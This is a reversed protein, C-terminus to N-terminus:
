AARGASAWARGYHLPSDGSPSVLLPRQIGRAKAMPLFLARRCLLRFWPPHVSSPSRFAGLSPCVFCFPQPSAGKWLLFTPRQLVFLRHQTFRELFDLASALWCTSGVETSSHQPQRDSLGVSPEAGELTAPTTDQM